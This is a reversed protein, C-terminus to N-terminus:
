TPTQGRGTLHTQLFKALEQHAQDARSMLHYRSVFGHVVGPYRTLTTDVGAHDLRDAYVEAEDRLPDFDATQVLTPPLRSVDAARAPVAYPNARHQAPVYHNWFWVMGAAELGYGTGNEDMSPYPDQESDICPYVLAQAALALGEDRARLAVAAALNGGASDGCVALRKPDGAWEAAHEALWATADYCDNFPAPFPFEPALRYEVSVVLAGTLNAIRRTLSDHGDVSSLVWGGGHFFVVVPLPSAPDPATPYYRRVAIDGDAGPVTDDIVAAVEDPPAKPAALSMERAQAVTLDTLPPLGFAAAQELFAATDDDLERTTM